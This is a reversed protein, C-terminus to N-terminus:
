DHDPLHRKLRRLLAYRSIGLKEAAKSKNGNTAELAKEIVGIEFRDVMEALNSRETTTSPDAYMRKQMDNPLLDKTLEQQETLIVMREVLNKLERVNGPWDYAIMARRMTTDLRMAPQNFRDCYIDLYNRAIEIIDEGRERLPPMHIPIVNLRYFLDQRFRNQEVAANLDRNTSAIVFLDISIETTGGLRRITRTELFKLLKAQLVFPMEGIEDLYLTGGSAIEILGVKRQKADTFAGKEYGFLESELLQEPLAACNIEIFPRDSRRSHNHIAKALLDKGTGSEGQLLVTTADIRCLKTVTNFVKQMAPSKGIISELRISQHAKRRHHAIEQSRRTEKLAKDILLEIEDIEFPKSVYDLAGLKMAKVATPVDGHATIIITPIHRTIQQIKGLVELGHLDPLQLDLFVIDPESLLLYELFPQAANFPHVGHGKGSLGIRLSNVLVKEDDVIAIEAM